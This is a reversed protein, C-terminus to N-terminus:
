CRENVDNEELSKESLTVTFKTGVGFESQVQIDSKHLDIIKKVISLGLGNGGAMRNRSQDAKYFREFIHMLTDKEMGIGTDRIKVIISNEGSKCAAISITGGQPTFKISNHILNIWVQDMLEEDATITVKDLSIDMNIKKETWQPENALIIRRLQYDLRYSKRDLSLHGSELSTLKLLNESLKSLRISETEIIELYHRREEPKLDENKLAYAFGSISTLPSQIEHSVNSIFEQRMEEMEGLKIAMLKINEVIQYYPHHKDQERFQTSYFSLDVNFNGEAIMKMAQIIPYLYQNQRARVWPNRTLLFIFCGFLTFGLFSNILLRVFEHPFYHIEKFLLTTLWYAVSWALLLSMIVAITGGIRKVYKFFKM